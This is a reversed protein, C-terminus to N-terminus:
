SVNKEISYLMNKNEDNFKVSAFFVKATLLSDSGAQHGMGVREIGLDKALEELGKRENNIYKLDYFNPVMLQLQNYFENESPLIDRGTIIKLIYGFDYCSHFSIWYIRNNTIIGSTVMLEGFDDIDIGENKHKEFNIGANKLLEISENAFSDANLDFKFNFQFTANDPMEGNFNSITLGIQIIKTINVNVRM